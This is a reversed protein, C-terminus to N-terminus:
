TFIYNTALAYTTLGIILQETHLILRFILHAQLLYYRQAVITDRARLDCVGLSVACPCYKNVISGRVAIREAEGQSAGRPVRREGCGGSSSVVFAM